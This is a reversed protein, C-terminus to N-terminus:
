LEPVGPVRNHRGKRPPELVIPMALDISVENKVKGFDTDAAVAIIPALFLLVAAFVLALPARFRSM